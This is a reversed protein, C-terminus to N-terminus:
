NESYILKSLFYDEFMSQRRCGGFAEERIHVMTMGLALTDAGPMGIGLDTIRHAPLNYHRRLQSQPRRRRM